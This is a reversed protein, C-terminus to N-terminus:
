YSCVISIHLDLHISFCYFDNSTSFYQLYESLDTFCWIDYSHRQFEFLVLLFDFFLAFFFCFSRFQLSFYCVTGLFRYIDCFMSFQFLTTFCRILDFIRSFGSVIFYTTSLLLVLDNRVSRTYFINFHILCSYYWFSNYNRCFSFLLLILFYCQLFYSPM